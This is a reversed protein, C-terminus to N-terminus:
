WRIGARASEVRGRTGDPHIVRTPESAGRGLPPVTGRDRGTFRPLRGAGPDVTTPYSGTPKSKKSKALRVSDHRGLYSSTVLWCVGWGPLRAAFSGGRSNAGTRSDCCSVRTAPGCLSWCAKSASALLERPEPTLTPNVTGGRGFCVGPRNQHYEDSIRAGIRITAAAQTSSRPIGESIPSPSAFHNQQARLLAARM